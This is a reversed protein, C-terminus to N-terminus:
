NLILNLIIFMFKSFELIQHFTITQDYINSVASSTALLIDDEKKMPQATALGITGWCNGLNGEIQM